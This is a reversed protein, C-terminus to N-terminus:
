VVFAFTANPNVLTMQSKLADSTAEGNAQHICPNADM